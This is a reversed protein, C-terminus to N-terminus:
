VRTESTNRDIGLFSTDHCGSHNERETEENDDQGRNDETVPVAVAAPIIFMKVFNQPFGLILILIQFWMVNGRKKEREEAYKTDIFITAVM